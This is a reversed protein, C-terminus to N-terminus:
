LAGVKRLLDLTGKLDDLNSLDINPSDITSLDPLGTFPKVGASLPFEYTKNAFYEQVEKGLLERLLSVSEAFNEESKLISGGAVNILAGVDRGTYFHNAAPFTPEEALKRMLYYHNVFGCSIEGAGAAAVQPTNKPYLIPENAIIGRLWNEAAGDGLQVRMATVHAQFSGNTPAWGLRGKWKSDTFGLISTPLDAPTLEKSNYVITRARGSLGVWEGKSSQFRADVLGLLGAPLGALFGEKAVAGLSGADQSIFISAPSNEGEELILAAMESSKGYRVEVKVNSGLKKEAIKIAPKIFSEKRGSYISLTVPGKPPAKTAEPAAKAVPAETAAPKPEPAETEAKSEPAKTAPAPAAAAPAPTEPRGGCAALLATTVVGGSLKLISRRRLWSM